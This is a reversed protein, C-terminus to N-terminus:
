MRAPISVQIDPVQSGVPQDEETSFKAEGEHEVVKGDAVEIDEFGWERSAGDQLHAGDAVRKAEWGGIVNWDEGKKKVFEGLSCCGVRVPLNRDGLLSKTLAITTAAHTVLMIVKHQPYVRELHPIFVSLYGDARDLIEGVDEGRRSPYWSTSWGEPDIEPFWQKLSSAPGPRPHLGTGPVVPSYWESLGHEVYLPLV